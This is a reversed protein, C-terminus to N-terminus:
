ELFFGKLHELTKSLKAGSVILCFPLIASYVFDINYICFSKLENSGKFLFIWLYGTIVLPHLLVKKVYLHAGAWLYSSSVSIDKLDVELALNLVPIIALTLICLSSFVFPGYVHAVLSLALPVIIKVPGNLLKETFSQFISFVCFFFLHTLFLQGWYLKIFVLSNDNGILGWLVIVPLTIRYNIEVAGETFIDSLFGIRELILGLFFILVLPLLVDITM